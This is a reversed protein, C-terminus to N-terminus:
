DPQHKSEADHGECRPEPHRSKFGPYLRHCTPCRRRGVAFDYIEDNMPVAWPKIEETM